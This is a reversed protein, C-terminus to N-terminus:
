SNFGFRVTLFVWVQVSGVQVTSVTLGRNPEVSGNGITLQLSFAFLDDDHSRKDISILNINPFAFFYYDDDYRRKDPPILNVQLALM